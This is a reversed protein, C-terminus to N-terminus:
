QSLLVSTLEGRERINPDSSEMLEKTQAYFVVDKKRVRGGGSAM